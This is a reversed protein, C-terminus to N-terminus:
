SEEADYIDAEELACILAVELDESSATGLDGFVVEFQGEEFRISVTIAARKLAAELLDLTAM